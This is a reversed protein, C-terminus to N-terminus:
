APIVDSATAPAKSVDAIRRERAILVPCPAHRVVREAVSGILFHTIGTRGHTGMVILDVDPAAAREVIAQSPGGILVEATVELGTTATSSAFASLRQEAEDILGKRLRPLEGLYVENPWPGTMLRDEIVHLLHLSAGFDKALARAYALAHDSSPSFDLPVLIKRIRPLM